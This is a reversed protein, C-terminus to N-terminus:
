KGFLRLVAQSIKGILGTEDDIYSTVHLRLTKSEKSDVFDKHGDVIGEAVIRARGTEILKDGGELIPELNKKNVGAKNRTRATIELKDSELLDALESLNNGVQDNIPNNRFVEIRINKIVDWDGIKSTSGQQKFVQVDIDYQGKKDSSARDFVKVLYDQIENDSPGHAKPMLVFIHHDHLFFGTVVQATVVSTNTILMEKSLDWGLGSSNENYKLLSVRTANHKKYYEGSLSRIVVGKSNPRIRLEGNMLEKEILAFLQSYGKNLVPGKVHINFPIIRYIKERRNTKKKKAM